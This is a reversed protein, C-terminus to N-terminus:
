KRCATYYWGVKASEKVLWQYLQDELNPKIELPRGSRSCKFNRSFDKIAEEYGSESGENFFYQQEKWTRRILGVAEKVLQNMSKDNNIAMEVIDKYEEKTVHITMSPHNEAYKLKSPPQHTKNRVM